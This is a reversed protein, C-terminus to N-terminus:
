RRARRKIIPKSKEIVKKTLSIAQYIRNLHEPVNTRTARHKLSRLWDKPDFEAPIPWFDNFPWSKARNEM